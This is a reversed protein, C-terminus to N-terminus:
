IPIVIANQFEVELTRPGDAVFQTYRILPWSHRIVFRCRVFYRGYMVYNRITQERYGRLRFEEEFREQRRGM